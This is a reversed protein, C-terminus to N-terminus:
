GISNILYQCKSISHSTKHQQLQFFHHVQFMSSVLHSVFVRLLISASLCFFFWKPLYFLTTLALHWSWNRGDDLTLFVLFVCQSSTMSRFTALMFILPLDSKFFKKFISLMEQNHDFLFDLVLYLAHMRPMTADDNLMTTM